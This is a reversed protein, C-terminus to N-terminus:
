LTPTYASVSNPGCIKVVEDSINLTGASHGLIQGKVINFMEKGCSTCVRSSHILAGNLLSGLWIVVDDFTFPLATDNQYRTFSETLCNTNNKSM